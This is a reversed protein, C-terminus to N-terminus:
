SLAGFSRSFRLSSPSAGGLTTVKFFFIAMGNKGEVEVVGLLLHSSILEDLRSTVNFDGLVGGVAFESPGQMGVYIELNAGSASTTFCDPAPATRLTFYTTLVKDIADYEASDYEASDYEHKNMWSMYVIKCTPHYVEWVVM